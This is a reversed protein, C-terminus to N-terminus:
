LASHVICLACHVKCNSTGRRGFTNLQQMVLLSLSHCWGRSVYCPHVTYLQLYLPSVLFKFPYLRQFAGPLGLAFNTNVGLKVNLKKGHSKAMAM